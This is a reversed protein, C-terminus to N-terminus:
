KEIYKSFSLHSLIRVRKRNCHFVFMKFYVINSIYSMNHTKDIKM